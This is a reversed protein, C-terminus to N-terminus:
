RATRYADSEYLAIKDEQINEWFRSSPEVSELRITNIYLLTPVGEALEQVQSWQRWDARPCLVALDVDSRSHYDDRARSGYLYVAEIPAVRVMHAVLQPLFRERLEWNTM